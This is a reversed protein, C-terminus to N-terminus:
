PKDSHVVVVDIDPRHLLRSATSEGHLVRAVGWRGHSSLVIVETKRKRHEGEIVMAVDEGFALDVSTKIGRAAADAPVLAQLSDKTESRAEAIDSKTPADKPAEDPYLPNGTKPPQDVHLLHVTAGKDAILYAIKVALNGLPSLDTPCLISRFPAKV